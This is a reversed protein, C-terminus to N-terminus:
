LKKIPLKASQWDCFGGLNVTQYGDQSLFEALRGSRNGSRCYLIVQKDKPLRNKFEQWKPTDEAMESIPMWLACEAYGSEILEQEERVDVLVAKGKKVLELAEAPTM